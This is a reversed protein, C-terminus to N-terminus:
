AARGQEAKSVARLVDAMRGTETERHEGTPEVFGASKLDSLRARSTNLVIGLERAVEDATMPKEALAKWIRRHLDGLRAGEAAAQAAQASTGGAKHNREVHFNTKANPGRALAATKCSECGTLPISGPPMIKPPGPRQMECHRCFFREDRM